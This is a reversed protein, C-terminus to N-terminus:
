VVTWQPGPSSVVTGLAGLLSSWGLRAVLSSDQWLSPESHACVYLEYKEASPLHGWTRAWTSQSLDWRYHLPCLRAHAYMLELTATSLGCLAM